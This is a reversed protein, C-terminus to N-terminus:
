MLDSDHAERGHHNPHSAASLRAPETRAGTPATAHSACLIIAAQSDRVNRAAHLEFHTGAPVWDHTGTDWSEFARRPVLITAAVDSNAAASVVVHGGLRRAGAPALCQTGCEGGACLGDDHALVDVYIQVVESSTRPAGNHLEVRVTVGSDSRDTIEMPGYRWDGWGLGFGFPRAPVRGLVDWSRYGVNVGETYDVYDDVPIADPVPVDAERAPLTWPLRGAPEFAGFVTGALAHGAEQGPLWWWLTAAPRVGDESAANTDASAGDLWPLIVPAGANVFVVTRPNAASVRRVLEDQRGPLALTTRDWGESESELNTGVVVIALDASRAAEVAEAIEESVSLGPRAHRIAARAFRGYAQGDIVQVVADIEILRPTVVDIFAPTEQPENVSSDLIVEAGVRREGKDIVQGDIRISYEGVTGIGIRHVGPESLSVNALLRLHDASPYRDGLEPRGDWGECETWADILEGDVDLVEVRLGPLGTVPDTARAALDLAPAHRAAVGGRHVSITVDDPLLASLGQWPLVVARPNVHASGGGQVFPAVAGPGILAVSRVTRPDVPLLATGDPMTNSLVVTAQAALRTLTQSASEAFVAHAHPEPVQDRDAVPRPWAGVRAALRLLRAVKDDIVSEPVAGTRVQEALRDEWPGGPGPMVLDLGALATEVTSTAALWDSIVVGDYGWEEKLIDVMLHHHETAPSAEVGTDIGNYAAMISWPSAERVAQEFPALYVERLAQEGMRAVYTTRETESDNALFHKLCVGIGHAQIAGILATAINGTLVPDESFCEFHRGGVPTRQLNVVPALIVDVGKRRAEAAFLDGLRRAAQVDWTAALASPAPFLLSWDAPDDRVGRVGVPGDSVVVSRLGIAELSHLSWATAGTLLRVKDVVSIQAVAQTVAERHTM